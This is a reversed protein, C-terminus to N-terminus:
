RQGCQERKQIISAAYKAASENNLYPLRPNTYFVCKLHEPLWISNQENYGVSCYWSSTAYVVHVSCYALWTVNRHFRIVSILCIVRYLWLLNCNWRLKGMVPLICTCSQLGVCTYSPLVEKSGKFGNAETSGALLKVFIEDRCLENSPPFSAFDIESVTHITIHIVRPFLDLSM